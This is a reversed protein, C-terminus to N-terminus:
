LDQPLQPGLLQVLPDQVIVPDPPQGGGMQMPEALLAEGAETPARLYDAVGEAEVKALVELLRQKTHIKVGHPM